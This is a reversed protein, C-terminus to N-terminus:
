FEVKEISNGTKFHVIVRDVGALEKFKIQDVANLRAVTTKLSNFDTQGVSAHGCKHCGAKQNLLSQQAQRMFPFAILLEPKGLLNLIARNELVLTQAM